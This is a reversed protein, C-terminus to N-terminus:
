GKGKYSGFSIMNKVLTYYKLVQLVVEKAKADGEPM